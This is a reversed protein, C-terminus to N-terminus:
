YLIGEATKHFPDKHYRFVNYEYHHSGETIVAATNFNLSPWIIQAHPQNHTIDLKYIACQISLLNNLIDDPILLM